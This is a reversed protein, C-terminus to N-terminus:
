WKYLDTKVNSSFRGRLRFVFKRKSCETWFFLVVKKIKWDGDPIKGPFARYFYTGNVDWGANDSNRPLYFVGLSETLGLFKECSSGLLHHEM